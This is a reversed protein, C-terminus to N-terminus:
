DKIPLEGWLAGRLDGLQYGTAADSPYKAALAAKVEPAVETGHCALCPAEIAIPRLVRAVKGGGGDVITRIGEVGAAKREGQKSLWEAVWPPPADAPNRLRLSSRGITIGTDAKMKAYLAPAEKSCVEVAGAPGGAKMADGLKQRLAGAFQTLAEDTRALPDVHESKRCGAATLLVLALVHITRM